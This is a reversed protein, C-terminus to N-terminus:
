YKCFNNSLWLFMGLHGIDNLIFSYKLENKEESFLFRNQDDGKTDPTPKTTQKNM